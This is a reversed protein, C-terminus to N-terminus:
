GSALMTFVSRIGLSGGAGLSRGTSGLSRTGAYMSNQGGTHDAHRLAGLAEWAAALPRRHFRIFMGLDSSSSSSSSLAIRKSSM